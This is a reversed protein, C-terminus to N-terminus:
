FKNLNVLIIEDFGGMFSKWWLIGNAIMIAIAIGMLTWQLPTFRIKM